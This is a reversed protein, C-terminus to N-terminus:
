GIAYVPNTNPALPPDKRRYLHTINNKLHLCRTMMADELIDLFDDEHGDFDSPAADQDEVIEVVPCGDLVHCTRLIHAIDYKEEDHVYNGSLIIVGEGSKKKEIIILM